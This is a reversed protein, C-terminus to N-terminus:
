KEGLLRDLKRDIRALTAEEYHRHVKAAESEENGGKKGLMERVEKLILLAVIAPIGLSKLLEDM